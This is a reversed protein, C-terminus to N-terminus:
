LLSTVPVTPVQIADSMHRYGTVSAFFQSGLLDAFYRASPYYVIYIRDFRAPQELAVPRGMHLPGHSLAAMLSLQEGGLSELAEAGGNPSFKVLNFVVLGQRNVEHMARLRAIRDRWVQFEPFTRFKQSAELSPPRWKGTLIDRLRVRLLYRPLAACIRRNRRMAHYYSDAFLGRAASARYDDCCQQYEARTPFELMLLGDWNKSDMHESGVTFAAQGAYILRANSIATIQEVFRRATAILRDGSALKFFVIVHFAEGPHFTKQFDQARIRRIRRYRFEQWGVALIVVVLIVALIDLAVGCQAQILGRSRTGQGDPVVPAM